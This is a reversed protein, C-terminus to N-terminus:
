ATLARAKGGGWRGLASLRLLNRFAIMLGAVEAMAAPIWM